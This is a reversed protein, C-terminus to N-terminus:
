KEIMIDQKELMKDQKGNMSSLIGIMVEGKKDFSQMYRLMVDEKEEKPVDTGRREFSTFEGKYEEYEVNVEEIRAFSPSKEKISDILENIGNEEGECIVRVSGDETNEAFGKVNPSDAANKIFTWFGAMQVNGKVSINARKMM